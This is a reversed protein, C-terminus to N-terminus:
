VRRINHMGDYSEGQSGPTALTVGCAVGKCPVFMM